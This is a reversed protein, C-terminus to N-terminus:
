KKQLFKGYSYQLFSGGTLGSVYVYLENPITFEPNAFTGIIGVVFLTIAMVFFVFNMLATRSLQKRSEDFFLTKYIKVWWKCDKDKTTKKVVKKVAM